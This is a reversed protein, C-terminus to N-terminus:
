PRTQQAGAIRRIIEALDPAAGGLAGGAAGLPTLEQIENGREPSPIGMAPPSPGMRVPPTMTRPGQMPKRTVPGGSGSALMKIIDELNIGPQQGFGVQQARALDSETARGREGSLSSLLRELMQSPPVESIHPGQVIGQGQGAAARQAAVAGAETSTARGFEPYTHRQMQQKSTPNQGPRFPVRPSSELEASAAPTPQYRRRRTTGKYDPDGPYPLPQGTVPDTPM